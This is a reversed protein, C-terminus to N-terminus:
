FRASKQKSRFPHPLASVISSLTPVLLMEATTPSIGFQGCGNYGFFLLGGESPFAMSHLGGALCDAIGVLSPVIAPITQNSTSGTGLQGYEGHGWTWVSGTEDMALTHRYGCSAGVLPPIDSIRQFVFPDGPRGLQSESNDGATFVSGQSDILLIGQAFTSLCRLPGDSLEKVRVSTPNPVNNSHKM